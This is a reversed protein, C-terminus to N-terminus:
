ATIVLQYGRGHKSSVIVRKSVKALAKRLNYIHSRLIDKEPVEDGWLNFEIESKNVLNPYAKTLQVIIKFTSPNLVVPIEDIIVAQQVLDITLCDVQLKSRYNNKAKRAQAQIRAYLELMDFPKVIYDDAGVDFGALKDDLTDKATLMLIPTDGNVLERIKETALMGDMKPMMVDMVIVDFQQQSALSLAMKGDFAFDVRHGKISLFDGINEAIDVNDEAILVRM